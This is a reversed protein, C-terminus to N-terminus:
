GVPIVVSRIFKGYQAETEKMVETTSKGDWGFMQSAGLTQAVGKSKRVQSQGETLKQRAARTTADSRIVNDLARRLTYNQMSAGTLSLDRIPRNTGTGKNKKLFGAKFISYYKSLPLAKRGDADIGSAIREKIQTLMVMGIKTLAGGDLKPPRLRVSKKVKVTLKAM